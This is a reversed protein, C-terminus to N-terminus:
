LYRRQLTSRKHILRILAPHWSTTWMNAGSKEWWARKDKKKRCPERNGIRETAAKFAPSNIIPNGSLLLSLNIWKLLSFCTEVVMPFDTWLLIGLEFHFISHWQGFDAWLESSLSWLSLFYSLVNLVSFFLTLPPYFCSDGEFSPNLCHSM